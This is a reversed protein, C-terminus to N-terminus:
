YTSSIFNILGILIKYCQLCTIAKPCQSANDQDLQFVLQMKLQLQSKHAKHQPKHGLIWNIPM